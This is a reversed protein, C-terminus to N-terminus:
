KPYKAKYYNFYDTEWKDKPNSVQPPRKSLHASIKDRLSSNKVKNLDLEELEDMFNPKKLMDAIDRETVERDKKKKTLEEPGKSIMKECKSIAKGISDALHNYKNSKALDQTDHLCKLTVEMYISPDVMDLPIDLTALLRVTPPLALRKVQRDKEM